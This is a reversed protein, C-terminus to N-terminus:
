ASKELLAVFARAAVSPPGFKPTVLGIKRRTSTGVLTIAHLTGAAVERQVALRPVVSIGFGLEVLRKLVEISGMEMVVRPSVRAREFAADLFARTGTTRDLLLLPEDRLEPVRVQKRRAFAHSSLCVVVDEYPAIPEVHVRAAVDDGRAGLADPLPLAVIGVDVRREAVALATAPSPRNDLRLEVGPHRDRFAALVPPLLYYALTDSTGIVLRGTRLEGLSSLRERAADMDGLIRTAYDLLVTGAQTLATTRGDRFFLSHGVERELRLVAQSVASQTKGLTRAARSFGRERAVTAFALLRDSDFTM